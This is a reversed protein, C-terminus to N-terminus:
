SACISRISASKSKAFVEVQLFGILGLAPSDNWFNREELASLVNWGM